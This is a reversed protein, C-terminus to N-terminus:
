LIHFNKFCLLQPNQPFIAPFSLLEFEPHEGNPYQGIPSAKQTTLNKGKRRSIKKIKNKGKKTFFM